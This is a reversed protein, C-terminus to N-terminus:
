DELEKKIAKHVAKEVFEPHQDLWDMVIDRLCQALASDKSETSKKAEQLKSFASLRPRSPTEIMRPAQPEDDDETLDETLKIVKATQEKIPRDNTTSVYQRISALIEEMSMDEHNQLSM